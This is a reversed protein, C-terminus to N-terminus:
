WKLEQQISKLTEGIGEEITFSPTWGLRDVAKKNDFCSQLIDGAKFDLFRPISKIGTKSCIISLLQNISTQKGTGLNFIENCGKNLALTCAAAVDDVYILDRTQEGNGFIVPQRNNMINRVFQYIVGGEGMKNNCNGYVNSFRFIIYNLGYLKSYLKIYEEGALKSIGYFSIPKVPHKEDIALYFPNGYVAASSSYIIKSVNSKICCELLNITGLINVEADYSPSEISKDVSIQAALHIVIDPKEYSFVEELMNDNVNIEYFIGKPNVNNFSGNSLNDVIVATHGNKIISNTVYKGIFGAGGTILVKMSNGGIIQM